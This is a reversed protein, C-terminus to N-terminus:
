AQRCRHRRAQLPDTETQVASRCLCRIHSIHTCMFPGAGLRARSRVSSLHNKTSSVIMISRSLFVEPEFLPFSRDPLEPLLELRSALLLRLECPSPNDSELLLPEGPIDSGEMSSSSSIEPDDPDDPDDDFRPMDPEPEALPEDPLPPVDDLPPDPEDFTELPPLPVLPVLLWVPLELPLPELLPVLPLLPLELPVDPLPPEDPPLPDDPPLPEPL